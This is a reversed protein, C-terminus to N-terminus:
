KGRYYNQQVFPMTSVTISKPKGRVVATLETGVASLEKPVYGMAIPQQLSPSFGGSTIQGIRQGDGDVIETGERVPARGDITFGVRVRLAAEAFQRLIREHGLFGASKSGGLRRSKSISWGISAEVPTTDADMDHGYLCLGAELRLSDRAGLGVWQCGDYSLLKDALEAVDSNAVSIEFGDEGTYGSCTVYCSIGAIQASTATMFPLSSLSPLLKSMLERAGKGQVAVLGREHLVEVQCNGLHQQLHALDQAKCAANVVLFFTEEDWRTIILDDLIGGNEGTFVGYTMQNVSMNELDVPVLYELARAASAGRVLFQGMHSVDFLGVRERTHLHEQMIGGPYQLPMLYGAFPVMKAGAAVHHCYLQTQKPESNDSM